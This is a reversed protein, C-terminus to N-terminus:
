ESRHSLLYIMWTGDEDYISRLSSGFARADPIELVFLKRDTESRSIEYCYDTGGGTGLCLRGWLKRKTAHDRVTKRSAARSMATLRKQLSALDEPRSFVAPKLEGAIEIKVPVQPGDAIIEPTNFFRDLQENAYEARPGESCGPIALGL